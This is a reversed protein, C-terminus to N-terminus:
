KAAKRLAADIRKVLKLRGKETAPVWAPRAAIKRTGFELYYAYALRSGITATLKNTQEFYVSSVLTGTDTAPADGPASAQHMGSLNQKGDARFIAALKGDEPNGAYVRMLGDDGPIRYYTVGRGKKQIMKKIETNIELATATIATAIGAEAEKAFSKLAAQVGDMGDISISINSM